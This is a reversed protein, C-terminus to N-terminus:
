SKKSKRIIEEPQFELGYVDAGHKQLIELFEGTFCGIDLIKKSKFSKDKFSNELIDALHKYVTKYQDSFNRLFKYNGYKFGNAYHNLIQQDNPYPLTSVLQCNKCKYYNFNKYTFLLKEKNGCNICKYNKKHKM